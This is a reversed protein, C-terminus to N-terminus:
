AEEIAELEEALIRGLEAAISGNLKKMLDSM